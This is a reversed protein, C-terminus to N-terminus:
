IIKQEKLGKVLKDAMEAPEEQWKVGSRSLDPSFIKVVRTPSGDLGLKPDSVDLDDRKIVTIETKKAKMKGKLSPMRPENIEKVVTILGPLPLTVVEYGEEFMREVIMEDSGVTRINRIFAVFPIGLQDALSPGVQATDGDIAQKGCIILDVTGMKRIAAALTYATAWTDSGAFVRDSILCVEDAGLAVAERLATEAQPPGMTIVKVTGGHQEKLRVGEEIAYMDFPNIISEVGERMLTNTEPNIKVKTTEPVQKICVVINM